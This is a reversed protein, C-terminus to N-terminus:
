QKTTDPDDLEIDSYAHIHNLLLNCWPPARALCWVNSTLAHRSQLYWTAVLFSRRVPVAGGGGGGGGDDDADDDNDEAEAEHDDSAKELLGYWTANM